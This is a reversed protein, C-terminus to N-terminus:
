PTAVTGQSARELSDLGKRFDRGVAENADVFLGIAKGMFSHEGDMSWTVRTKGGGADVLTFASSAVARFPEMFEVRVTIHTPPQEDLITMKGRGVRENGHWSYSAGTGRSPGTFTKDLQPDLDEWPSWTSWARFDDLQEFVAEAPAAMLKTAEVHYHGPQVAAFCLVGLILVGIGLLIKKIM